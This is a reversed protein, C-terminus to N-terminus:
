LSIFPLEARLAQAYGFYFSNPLLIRLLAPFYYKGNSPIYESSGGNSNNNVNPKKDADSTKKMIKDQIKQVLDSKEFCDTFDIRHRKLIEKLQTVSLEHLDFNDPTIAVGVPQQFL